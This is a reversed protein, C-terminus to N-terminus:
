PSLRIVQEPDPASPYTSDALAIEGDSAAAIGRFDGGGSSNTQASLGTFVVASTPQSAPQWSSLDVYGITTTAGFPLPSWLASDDSLTFYLRQNGPPGSLALGYGEEQDSTVPLQVRDVQTTDAKNIRVLQDDAYDIAYVFNIDAVIQWPAPGLFSYANNSPIKYTTTVNGTSADVRGVAPGWFDTVWLQAGDATIMGPLVGWTVSHFSTAGALAYFQGGPLCNMGVQSPSFSDIAEGMSEVFWIKTSNGTGTAALGVVENDNGPVQYSCFGGSAPNYAVIESHNTAGSPPFEWGGETFWVYNDAYTVREGLASLASPSTFYYFPKNTLDSPDPTSTVSTQGPATIGIANTFESDDYITTGTSGGFTVDLPQGGSQTAKTLTSFGQTYPEATWNSGGVTITVTSDPTTNGSSNSCLNDAANCTYLQLVYTSGAAATAPIALSVARANTAWGNSPAGQWTGGPAPFTAATQFNPFGNAGLSALIFYENENRNWHLTLDSGPTVTVASRGFNEPSPPGATTFTQSTSTSGDPGVCVYGAVYKASDDGQGCLQYHYTTGPSLGTVNEPFQVTCGNGCTNGFPGRAPTTGSSSTNSAGPSPYKISFNNGNDYQAVAYRFYYTCNATGASGDINTGCSGKGNLTASSSTVNTAPLTAGNCAALVLM